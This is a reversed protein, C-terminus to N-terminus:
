NIARQQYEEPIHKDLTSELDIKSFLIENNQAQQIGFLKIGSISLSKVGTRVNFSLAISNSDCSKQTMNIIIGTSNGQKVSKRWQALYRKNLQSAWFIVIGSTGNKLAKNMTVKDDVDNKPHILLVRSPDIGYYAFLQQNIDAPPSILTIWRNQANLKALTPLLLQLVSESDGSSVESLEAQPWGQTPLVSDLTRASKQDRIKKIPYAFEFSEQYGSGNSIKKQSYIEWQSM